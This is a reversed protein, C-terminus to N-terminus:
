VLRKIIGFSLLSMILGALIVGYFIFPLSDRKKMRMLSASLAGTWAGTGPLPIGVFLLLGWRGYKKIQIDNNFITVFFLGVILLQSAIVILSSVKRRM